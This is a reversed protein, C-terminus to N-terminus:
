VLLFGDTIIPTHFSPPGPPQESSGPTVIKFVFESIQRGINDGDPPAVLGHVIESVQPGLKIAM